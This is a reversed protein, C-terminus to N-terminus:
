MNTRENDGRGKVRGQTKSQKQPRAMREREGKRGWSEEGRKMM